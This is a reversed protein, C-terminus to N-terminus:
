KQCIPCFCTGRSAVVIKKIITGCKKCKEGGRGYVLRSKWYSGEQGNADRYTSFTTGGLKISKNLVLPILKSINKWESGSINKVKRMSRVGALFCVEDAYINGLGAIITQDLLYGKLSKKPFRSKNILLVELIQKPSSLGDLGFSSHLNKHGIMDLWKLWGFKRVDNFYLHSGNKFSVTAHTFKNPTNNLGAIPHGGVVVRGQGTLLEGSTKFGGNAKHKDSCEDSRYAVSHKAELPIYVLQGTMKLHIALYGQPFEVLIIKARRAVGLIKQGLINKRIIKLSPQAMKAWNCSFGKVVENKLVRDLQRVITEVEPLEPM